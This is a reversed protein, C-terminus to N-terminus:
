GTIVPPQAAQWWGHYSFPAHHRLHISALPGDAVREADLIALFSRGTRVDYCESLLWGQDAGAGPRAIFLPESCYTREGFDYRDLSGSRLNFRALGNWFFSGPRAEAMWAHEHPQGLRRLDISPWEFSGESLIEETLRKQVTDIRYRRLLGPYRHEGERGQMVASIIPDPGVFHDPNDYGIFDAIITGRDDHANISHWMFRAPAEVTFHDQSSDRPIVLLLNGQEPRWRLSDSISRFGLLAPWFDIVVPHLSVILYRSSVFWDHIYVFRPMTIARHYNLTGNRHFVTIHLRPTAGYFVGFHLWEGSHPDIKSHASYITEERPLGFTAEGITELTDPDLAYPYSSEDFAYLRGNILYVTIGAQSKLGETVWFNAPWGGPAQTSWSPYIFRGAASEAKYKETKVFSTRYHVGKDHFRFHRILGDGDLITRKRQGGREFLGPGNRYLSGRLDAPIKGVVEAAYDQEVALSEALGGYPLRDLTAALDPGFRLPPSSACGGTALGAASLAAAKLFERRNM